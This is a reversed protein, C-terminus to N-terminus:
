SSLTQDTATSGVNELTYEPPRSPDTKTVSKTVFLEVRIHVSCYGINFINCVLRPPSERHIVVVSEQMLFQANSEPVMDCVRRTYEGGGVREEEGVVEEKWPELVAGITEAGRAVM